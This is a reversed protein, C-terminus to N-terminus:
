QGGSGEGGSEGSGPALPPLTKPQYAHERKRLVRAGTLRDGARLAGPVDAGEVIRGFVVARGDLYPLPALTLYFQSGASDEGRGRAMAIVGPLHARGVRQGDKVGFEDALRWGPGGRGIKSEQGGERTEPDGGQVLFASLARHIRTGEYFGSEVLKIFNAVTNPTTDEFLELVIKREGFRLEVRPLTDEAAERKRLIAEAAALERVHKAIRVLDEAETRMASDKISEALTIASDWRETYFDLTALLLRDRDQAAAGSAAPALLARAEEFRNFVTLLRAAAWTLFADDPLAKHARLASALGKEFVSFDLLRREGAPGLTAGVSRGSDAMTAFLKARGAHLALVDPSVALAAEVKRGADLFRGAAERRRGQLIRLARGMATKLRAERVAAAKDPTKGESKSSGGDGQEGKRASKDAELRLLRARLIRAELEAAEQQLHAYRWAKLAKKAAAELAAPDADPATKQAGGAPDSKPDPTQARASTPGVLTVVAAALFPALRRTRGQM